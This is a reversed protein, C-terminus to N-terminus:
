TPAYQFKIRREFITSYLPKEPHDRLLEIAMRMPTWSDDRNLVKEYIAGKVGHHQPQPQQQAVDSGTVRHEPIAYPRWKWGAVFCVLAFLWFLFVRLGPASFRVQVSRRQSVQEVVPDM